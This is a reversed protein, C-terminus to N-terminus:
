KGVGFEVGLSKAKKEIKKLVEELKTNAEKFNRGSVSVSFRSSGLYHVEADVDLVNQIDEVGREGFSKVVIKKEVVKEKEEKESFIKMIKEADTKKLFKELVKANEKIAEFFDLITFEKKIKEIIKDPEGVIAKLMGRLTKEKKHTELVQEKEKGTVRRLSMEVQDGSVKLVKCVVKKGPIVYARLNRIRGAAVESLVMSGATGDELELFVTAGEIKKVTCLVVDDEKWSM